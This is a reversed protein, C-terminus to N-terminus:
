AAEQAPTVRYEWVGHGPERRRRLVEHGGFKDKRLDRLRASASAEPVGSVENIEALTRWAGDSMLRRVTDLQRTIRDADLAPASMEGDFRPRLDVLSPQTM